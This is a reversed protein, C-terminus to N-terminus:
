RRINSITTTIGDIAENVASKDAELKLKLLETYRELGAGNLFKDDREIAM